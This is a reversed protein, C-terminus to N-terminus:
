LDVGNIDVASIIIMLIFYFVTLILQLLEPNSLTKRWYENRQQETFGKTNKASNGINKFFNKLTAAQLVVDGEYPFRNRAIQYVFAVSYFIYLLIYGYIFFNQGLAVMMVRNSILLIVVMIPTEVMNSHYILLSFVDMLVVSVSTIIGLKSNDDKFYLIVSLAVLPLLSLFLVIGKIV